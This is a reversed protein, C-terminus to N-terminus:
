VISTYCSTRQDARPGQRLYRSLSALYEAQIDRHGPNRTGRSSLQFCVILWAITSEPPHRVTQSLQALDNQYAFHVPVDQGPAQIDYSQSFVLEYHKGGGVQMSQYSGSSSSMFLSYILAITLGERHIKRASPFHWSPTGLSISHCYMFAPPAVALNMAFASLHTPCGGLVTRQVLITLYALLM